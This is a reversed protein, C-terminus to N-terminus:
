KPSFPRSFTPTSSSARVPGCCPQVLFGFIPRAFYLSGGFAVGIAVFSWILRRRLEVLHEMLPAATDDLEKM